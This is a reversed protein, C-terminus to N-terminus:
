GRGHFFPSCLKGPFNLLAGGGGILLFGGTELMTVVGSRDNDFIWEMESLVM